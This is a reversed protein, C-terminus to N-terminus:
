LYIYFGLMPLSILSTKIRLETNFFIYKHMLVCWPLPEHFINLKFKLELFYNEPIYKKRLVVLFKIRTCHSQDLIVSNKAGLFAAYFYDVYVFKFFPM